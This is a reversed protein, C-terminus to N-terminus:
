SNFFSVIKKSFKESGNYAGNYEFFYKDAYNYTTRFAWDGRYNPIESGRAVEQRSALGMASIAHKGFDRAWNIQFQYNLNRQSSWNQVEGGSTNWLVGQM